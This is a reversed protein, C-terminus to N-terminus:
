NKYQQRLIDFYLIKVPFRRMLAGLKQNLMSGFIFSLNKINAPFTPDGIQVALGNIFPTSALNPLSLVVIRKAGRASLAAVENAIGTTSIDSVQLLQLQSPMPKQALAAFIDNAGSWIFYM